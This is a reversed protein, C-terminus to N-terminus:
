HRVQADRAVLERTSVGAPSNSTNTKEWKGRELNGGGPNGRIMVVLQLQRPLGQEDDLMMGWGM